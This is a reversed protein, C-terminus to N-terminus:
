ANVTGKNLLAKLNKIHKKHSILSKRIETCKAEDFEFDKKGLQVKLVMKGNKEEAKAHAFINRLEIVESQYSKNAELFTKIEQNDKALPKLLERFIEWKKIADIKYFYGQFSGYNEWFKDLRKQWPKFVKNYVIKKLQTEDIGQQGKLLMVIEEIEVDLDSTAATILGRTANLELLKQITLLIVKEIKDL